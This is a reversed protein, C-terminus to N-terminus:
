GRLRTSVELYLEGGTTVLVMLNKIPPRQLIKLSISIKKNNWGQLFKKNTEM